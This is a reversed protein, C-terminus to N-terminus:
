QIKAKIADVSNSGSWKKILDGNADVQVFTHQYTVGYKKRLDTNSDYDTKLLLFDDVGTEMISKDAAKCSPCWPAHFFLVVDEHAGLLETSYEKYGTEGKKMMVEEEKVMTDETDDTMVEDDKEMMAEGDKEMMADGEKEMMSDKKM